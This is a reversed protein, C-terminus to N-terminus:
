PGRRGGGPGGPGGPGSPGGPGGPVHLVCNCNTGTCRQDMPDTLVRPERPQPRQQALSQPDARIGRPAVQQRRLRQLSFFVSLLPLAFLPTERKNQAQNVNKWEHHLGGAM